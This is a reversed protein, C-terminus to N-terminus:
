NYKGNQNEALEERAERHIMSQSPKMSNEKRKPEFYKM